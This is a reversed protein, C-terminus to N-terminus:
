NTDKSEEYRESEDVMDNETKVMGDGKIGSTEVDMKKETKNTGAGIMRFVSADAKKEKKIIEGEPMMDQRSLEQSVANSQLPNMFADLSKAFFENPLEVLLPLHDVGFDKMVDPGIDVATVALGDISSFMYDLVANGRTAKGPCYCYYKPGDKLSVPIFCHSSKECTRDRGAMTKPSDWSFGSTVKCDSGLVEIPPLNIDGILIWPKDGAVAIVTSLAANLYKRSFSARAPGKSPAHVWCLLLDRFKLCAVQRASNIGTRLLSCEPRDFSVLTPSVWWAYQLQKARDHTGYRSDGYSDAVVLNISSAEKMAVAKAFGLQTEEMSKKTADVHRSLVTDRDVNRPLVGTPKAVSPDKLLQALLNEAMKYKADIKRGLMELDKTKFGEEMVQLVEALLVIDVDRKALLQSFLAGKHTNGSLHQTNWFFIKM